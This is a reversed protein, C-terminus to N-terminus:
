LNQGYLICRELEDQTYKEFLEMGLCEPSFYCDGKYFQKRIFCDDGMPFKERENRTEFEPHKTVWWMPVTWGYIAKQSIAKIEEVPKIRWLGMEKFIVHVKKEKNHSRKAMKCANQITKYMEDM